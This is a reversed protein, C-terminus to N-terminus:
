DKFNFNLNNKFLYILFFIVLFLLHPLSVNLYNNEVFMLNQSQTNEIINYYSIYLILGYGLAFNYKNRPNTESILISILAMIILSIAPSARSLLEISENEHNSLLLTFSDKSSLSKNSAFDISKSMKYLNFNLQNFDTVKIPIILSTNINEYITGNQLSLTIEGKEENIIKLGQKALIVKDDEAFYIFVGELFQENNRIGPKINQSYFTINKKKFDQFTNENLFIFDPRSNAEDKIQEVNKIANPTVFLSFTLVILGLLFIIPSLFKYLKFSSYGASSFIILESNKYLKNLCFILALVSSLVFLFPVDILFKYLVLSIVESGFLGENIAKTAVVYFKNGLILVSLILFISIFSFLIENSIYMFLKKKKFQM